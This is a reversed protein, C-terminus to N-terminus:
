TTAANFTYLEYIGRLTFNEDAFINNKQGFDFYHADGGTMIITLDPFKAEYCEIMYHLEGLIGYQVGNQIAETTNKGILDFSKSAELHPLKATYQHLSAYRLRMGPSISGGIFERQNNVFDFKICTGMDICLAHQNPFRHILAAANCLRDIGLTEPTEYDIMFPLKLNANLLFTQPFLKTFQANFAVSRVSALVIKTAHAIEQVLSDLTTFISTSILEGQRFHALKLFTNGADVIYVSDM